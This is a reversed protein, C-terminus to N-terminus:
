SKNISEQEVDRWWGSVAKAKDSVGDEESERPLSACVIKTNSQFEGFRELLLQWSEDETIKHVLHVYIAPHILEFPRWCYHGDKNTQLIYNVNDFDCAKKYGM